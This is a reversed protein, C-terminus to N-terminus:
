IIRYTFTFFWDFAALSSTISNLTARNNTSDGSIAGNQGTSGSAQAAVGACQNDSALDSAIPLSIGMTILGTATPDINIKGSVTVLDGVCMYQCVSATSAAINTTNTLTPTYIGSYPAQIVKPANSSSQHIPIKDGSAPLVVTENKVEFPM